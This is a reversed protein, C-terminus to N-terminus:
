PRARDRASGAAGARGQQAVLAEGDIAVPRRGSLPPWFDQEQRMLSARSQGNARSFFPGLEITDGEIHYPGGFRNVVAEGTVRGDSGFVITSTVDDCLPSM